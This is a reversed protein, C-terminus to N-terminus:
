PSQTSKRDSELWQMALTATKPPECPRGALTAHSDLYRGREWAQWTSLTVGLANAAARQSLGMRARWQATETM